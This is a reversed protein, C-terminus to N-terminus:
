GQRNLVELHTEVSSALASLDYGGELLSVLRGGCLRRAADCLAESMERYGDETVLTGSLPDHAHADFGASVLLFEPRFAELEPLLKSEFERLYDADNSGSEMPLNLTTGEGDGLGRERVSGTGPYHPWQHLSAFFVKPDREFSHQTGNGHHVDWDVIAVRELGHAELLHRAAIAVNNFVCFGMARDHEAHHGPPRAALFANQWEGRLVREVCEIAGGAARRAAELSAPSVVTDGWDLVADGARIRRTVEAVYDGTHIRELAAIDAEPAEVSELESRLASRELHDLISQLRGPCEPHASGTDHELFVPHTVFGTLPM